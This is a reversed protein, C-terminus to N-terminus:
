HGDSKGFTARAKKFFFIALFCLLSSRSQLLDFDSRVIGKQDSKWDRKVGFALESKSRIKLRKKQSRSQFFISNKWDNKARSIPVKKSKQCTSKLIKGLRKTM